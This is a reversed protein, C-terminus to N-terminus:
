TKLVSGEAQDVFLGGFVDNRTRLRGHGSRKGTFAEYTVGLRCREDAIEVVGAELRPLLHFTIVRTDLCDGDDDNPVGATFHETKASPLFPSVIREM